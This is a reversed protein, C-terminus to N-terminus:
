RPGGIALKLADGFRWIRCLFLVALAGSRERRNGLKKSRLVKPVHAIASAPLLMTRGLWRLRGGPAQRQLAFTERNIRVWKQRLETWTRRAPHTVIAGPAYGLRYGKAIARRSWDVDESVSSGFGGVTEFITRPVFLNGSGTFGKRTIYTEFDFAFVKEFAETPTMRGEDVVSVEVRGGAFDYKALAAIGEALWEPAPVCDSDTFAFVTGRAASAGGNRAPGAGREHVVVLRARGATASEVAAQGCPSDNDAIIIEFEDPPVTQNALAALCNDLNALDNFHPVIVSICPAEASPSIM